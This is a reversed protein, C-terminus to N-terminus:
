AVNAIALEVEEVVRLVHLYQAGIREFRDNNLHGKM